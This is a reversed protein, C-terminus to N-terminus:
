RNTVHRAAMSTLTRLRDRVRPLRDIDADRWTVFRHDPFQRQWAQWYAEYADPIPKAGFWVRHFTTM